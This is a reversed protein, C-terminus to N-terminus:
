FSLSSYSFLAYGSYNEIGKIYELQRSIVDSNQVWENKGNGAFEDTNGCKYTALGFCLKIKENTVTKSWKNVTEAFPLKEHEFGFYVQPIICDAYGESSGWKKVDACYTNMNKEINGSPSISVCIDKNISKVLSYMGKVFANVNQRRWENKKLLGGSAKYKEYEEGDIEDSGSPYFYDDIHIGDVDYNKAIERIGDLIIRHAKQSAPNWFIGEKTVSVAEDNTKDDDTLIKKAPSDDSLSNIDTNYSVRFPNVWAHFELSYSHAYEIMIRLPDFLLEKGIKLYETLPFIESPYFADSFARVHVFATNLGYGRINMFMKKVDERFSEENTADLKELEYCSVWVGRMEESELSETASIKDTVNEEKNEAMFNCGNFSAFIFFSMLLVVAAARSM